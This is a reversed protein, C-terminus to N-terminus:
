YGNLLINLNNDHQFIIEAFDLDYYELINIYDEKLIKYYLELNLNSKIKCLYEM